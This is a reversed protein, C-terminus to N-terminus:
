ERVLLTFKEGSPAPAEEWRIADGRCEYSTWCEFRVGGEGCAVNTVADAQLRAAEGKLIEQLAAPSYNTRHIGSTCTAAEVEGLFTFRRKPLEEAKVITINAARRRLEPDRLSNSTVCGQGLVLVAGWLMGRLHISM